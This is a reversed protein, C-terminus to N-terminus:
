HKYYRVVRAFKKVSESLLILEITLFKFGTGTIKKKKGVWLTKKFM